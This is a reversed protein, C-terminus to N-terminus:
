VCVMSFMNCNRNQLSLVILTRIGRRFEDDEVILFLRELAMLARMSKDNCFPFQLINEM